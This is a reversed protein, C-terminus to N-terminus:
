AADTVVTFVAMAPLLVTCTAKVSIGGGPAGSITYVANTEMGKTNISFVTVSTGFLVGSAGEGEFGNGSVYSPHFYM